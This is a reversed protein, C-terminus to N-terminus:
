AGEGRVTMVWFDDGRIVLVATGIDIALPSRTVVRIPGYGALRAVRHYFVIAKGPQGGMMMECALGIARDRDADDGQALGAAGLRALEAELRGHFWRGREVLGPASRMWEQITLNFVDADVPDGGRVWGNKATFIKHGGVARALARAALNGRPCRTIVEVADTRTFLIHLAAKVFDLMWRGRGRERAMTHAEYLGPQLPTFVAAVDEATLCLNAPNAVIPTLDIRGKHWGAVEPYVSEDNVLRNLDHADRAVTIKALTAHLDSLPPTPRVMPVRLPANM